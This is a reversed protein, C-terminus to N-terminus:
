TDSPTPPLLIKTGVVIKDADRIGNIEAIKRWLSEDKLVHRAIRYLTDSKRVTYTRLGADNPEPAASQQASAITRDAVDSTATDAKAALVPIVLVEGVRIRDLRDDIQPNAAVIARVAEQDARDWQARLIGFLTDGKKVVYERQVAESRESNREDALADVDISPGVDVPTNAALVVIGGNEMLRQAPGSDFEAFRAQPAGGSRDASDASRESAIRTQERWADVPVFPSEPESRNVLPPLGRRGHEAPRSDRMSRPASLVVVSASSLQDEVPTAREFRAASAWMPSSAAMAVTSARVPGNALVPAPLELLPRAVQNVLWCGGGTVFLCTLLAAKVNLAM